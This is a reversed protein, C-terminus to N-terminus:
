LSPLIQHNHQAAGRDTGTLSFFSVWGVMTPLYQRVALGDHWRDPTRVRRRASRVRGHLLQLPPLLPVPDLNNHHNAHGDPRRRQHQHQHSTGSDDTFTM